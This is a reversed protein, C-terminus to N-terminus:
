RNESTKGNTKGRHIRCMDQVRPSEKEPANARGNLGVKKQGKFSLFRTKGKVRRPENGIDITNKSIEWGQGKEIVPAEAAKRM